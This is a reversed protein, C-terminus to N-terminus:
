WTLPLSTFSLHANFKVDFVQCSDIMQQQFKVRWRDNFKLSFKALFEPFSFEGQFVQPLDGAFSTFEYHASAGYYWSGDEFEPIDALLISKLITNGLLHVTYKM